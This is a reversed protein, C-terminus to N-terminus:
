VETEKSQDALMRRLVKGILNKPLEDLFVYIRPVKYSALRSRCFQNLEDESVKAGEKLVVFAKVTEGRYPDPVGIVAAEAVAVHEFLVEEIERPYINFGGAIIVDKKRDVIYFYGEEDMYAMDGTYLWGEKLVQLTDEPRKWYGKMVQPGRVVLEGIKGIPIDEESDSDVIKAETDPWPLGISGFKRKGWIPNAHTVPSCETLGYGEVLKGGTLEEFKEQIEVPLPASGSICAQISSIDFNKLEPHNVIGIYMTPAGPFITPKEKQITKFLQRVDFKPLMILCGALHISLNMAVTMGYVHFFPVVALFKESGIKTKYFWAHCQCVNAVLNAHTLMVGKPVGTTGGTYQLLALDEHPDIAVAEDSTAAMQMLENWHVFEGDKALTILGGTKKMAFPYLLKKVMPLYDQIRTVIVNSLDTEKKINNVKPYVLDLCVMVKAGSDNLQYALEREMYLPNTQVVVAGVYLVGYYSIVAQPCNPLMIAVRDGKQVGSARLAGAFILVSKWLEDYRISKGMFRMAEKGPFKEATDKLFQPLPISPYKLSAQTESPYQALWPKREM